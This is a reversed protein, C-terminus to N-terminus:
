AKRQAGVGRESSNVPWSSATYAYALPLSHYPNHINLKKLLDLRSVAQCTSDQM